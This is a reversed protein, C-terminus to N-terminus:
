IREPEADMMQRFADMLNAKDDTADIGRFGDMEDWFSDSVYCSSQWASELFKKIRARDKELEMNKRILVQREAEVAILIPWQMVGRKKALELAEDWQQQEESTM